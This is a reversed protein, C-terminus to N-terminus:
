IRVRSFVGQGGEVEDAGVRAVEGEGVEGAGGELWRGLSPGEATPSGDGVGEVPRRRDVDGATGDGVEDGM